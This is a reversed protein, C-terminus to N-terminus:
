PVLEGGQFMAQIVKYASPSLIYDWLRQRSPVCIMHVLVDMALCVMSKADELLHAVLNVYITLGGM